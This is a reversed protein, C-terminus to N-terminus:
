HIRKLAVTESSKNCGMRSSEKIRWERSWELHVSGCKRSGVCVVFWPDLASEVQAIQHAIAFSPLTLHIPKRYLFLNVCFGNARRNLEFLEVISKDM